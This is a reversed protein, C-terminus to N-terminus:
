KFTLIKDSVKSGGEHHVSHYQHSIIVVRHIYGRKNYYKMNHKCTLVIMGFIPYCDNLHCYWLTHHVRTTHVSQTPRELIVLAWKSRNVQKPKNNSPLIWSLQPKSLATGYRSVVIGFFALFIASYFNCQITLGIPPVHLIVDHCCETYVFKLWHSSNLTPRSTM